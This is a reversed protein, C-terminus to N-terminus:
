LAIKFSIQKGNQRISVIYISPDLHSLDIQNLNQFVDLGQGRTNIITIYFAITEDLSIKLQKNKIEYSILSGNLELVNLEDASVTICASTDYCSSPTTFDKSTIVAYDGPVTPTFASGTEGTILTDGDCSYWQTPHFPLDTILMGNTSLSAGTEFYSVSKTRIVSDCGLVSWLTDKYVGPGVMEGFVEVMDGNCLQEGGLNTETAPPCPNTFTLTASGRNPGHYTLNPGSGIAYAINLTTTATTFTYDLADATTNNRTYTFTKVGATTSSTIGTLDQSTHIVPAGNGVMNYEEPNGGNNNYVNAYGVMNITNFAAAFWKSNPGSVEFTTVGTFDNITVEIDMENGSGVTTSATRIQAISAVSLLSFAFFLTKM